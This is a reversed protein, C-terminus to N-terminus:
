GKRELIVIQREESGPLKDKAILLKPLPLVKEVGM